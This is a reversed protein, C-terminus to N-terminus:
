QRESVHYPHRNIIPIYFVRVKETDRTARSQYLGFCVSITKADPSADRRYFNWLFSQSNAGTVPNNEQRWISWLPSWNRDIGPSAPFISEMLALIQLRASGDFDRNYVFLPWLDLRKKYKGTETNKEITDQFLFFLIRTRRRDLPPAHIANYKYVPWLYFNDRFTDNYAQQYFPFIRLATKGEGRAVVIFPWPMEWERYKKDRDNIKNFFPWFISTSDRGTSRYLSYLPLLTRLKDPNDTGIGGNEWFYFPWLVFHQDHGGNTEVEWTNTVLTLDKHERGYFPWFQWGGLGNGHRVNFFPYFYNDNIVDRKRTESYAPFMVFFIQDRFLRDKLHGYFPFFATYNSNTDLSRQQFYIPFITIRHRVLDDPNEGGSFSLVEVFQARYQTGYKVYTFVPYLFENESTNIAPDTSLSYFPPFALTNRTDNQDNYYFPGLIETRQGSDLTLPFQDFIPGISFDGAPVPLPPLFFAVLTITLSLAQCLSERGFQTLTLM